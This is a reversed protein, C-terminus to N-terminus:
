GFSPEMGPSIIKPTDPAGSNLTKSIPREGAERRDESAAFGGTDPSLTLGFGLVALPVARAEALATALQALITPYSSKGSM